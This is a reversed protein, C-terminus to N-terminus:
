AEVPEVVADVLMLHGMPRRVALEAELTEIDAMLGSLQAIAHERMTELEGVELRNLHYKEGDIRHVREM